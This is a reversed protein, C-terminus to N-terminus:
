RPKPKKAAGLIKKMADDFEMPHLSVPKLRKKKKPEKPEQGAAIQAVRKKADPM